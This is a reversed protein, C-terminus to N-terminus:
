EKVYLFLPSSYKFEIELEYGRGQILKHVKENWPMIEILLDPWQERCINAMWRLIDHEEWDVDIKIMDVYIGKMYKDLSSSKAKNLQKHKIIVWELSNLAVNEKLIEFIAKDKEFSYVIDACYKKFFITHNGINAGVDVITEYDKNNKIYHLVRNEYYDKWNSVVKWVNNEIDVIMKVGDLLKVQEVKM